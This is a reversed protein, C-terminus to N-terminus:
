RRRHSKLNPGGSSVSAKKRPPSGEIYGGKGLIVNFAIFTEDSSKVVSVPAFPNYHAEVQTWDDDMVAAADHRVAKVGFIKGRHKLALPRGTDRVRKIVQNFVDLPLLPVASPDEYVTSLTTSM